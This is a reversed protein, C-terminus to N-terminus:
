SVSNLLRIAQPFFSRRLRETKAMMSRFRKGSPLLCFHHNGPHNSDKIIKAARSKCRKLYIHQLSPLTSGSIREALRVVRQLAKCDQNKANNYWVSICQHVYTFLTIYILDSIEWGKGTRRLDPQAVKCESLCVFLGSVVCGDLRVSYHCRIAICLLLQPKYFSSLVNPKKNRGLLREDRDSIFTLETSNRQKKIRTPITGLRKHPMSYNPCNFLTLCGNNQLHTTKIILVM